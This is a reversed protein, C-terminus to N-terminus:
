KKKGKAQDAPTAAQDVPAAVPAAKPAALLKASPLEHGLALIGAKIDGISSAAKMPILSEATFEYSTAATIRFKAQIKIAFDVAEAGGKIAAAIPGAVFNPLICTSVGTVVEGTQLNVAEFEGTLKVFETSVEEGGPLTRSTTGAKIAFVRGIIQLLDVPLGEPAEGVRGKMAAALVAIKDGFATAVTLKKLIKDAM